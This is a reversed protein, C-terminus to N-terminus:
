IIIIDLMYVTYSFAKEVLFKESNHLLLKECFLKVFM